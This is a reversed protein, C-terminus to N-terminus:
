RNLGKQELGCTGAPLRIVVSFFGGSPLQAYIVITPRWTALGNPRVQPQAVGPGPDDPDGKMPPQEPVQYSIGARPVVLSSALLAWAALWAAWRSRRRM